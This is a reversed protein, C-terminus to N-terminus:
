SSSSLNTVDKLSNGRGRRGGRLSYGGEECTGFDDELEDKKREEGQSRNESPLM